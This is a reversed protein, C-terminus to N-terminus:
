GNNRERFLEFIREYVNSKHNDCLREFIKLSNIVTKSWLLLEEHLGEKEVLREGFWGFKKLILGNEEKLLKIMNEDSNAKQALVSLQNNGDNIQEFLDLLANSILDMMDHHVNVVQLLNDIFNRM